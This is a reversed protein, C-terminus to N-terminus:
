RNEFESPPWFRFNEGVDVYDIGGKETSMARDKAEWEDSELIKVLASMKYHSAGCLEACAIEYEGTKNAEFWGTITLGPVLDQKFRLVPIYLAHIVDISRMHLIVPRDKPVILTGHTYDDDTGFKKDPGAYRFNWAFQQALVHVQIADEDNVPFKAPDKLDTWLGFQIVALILLIIAPIATWAVEAKHNGHTYYAKGGEKARYKIIFYILLGETGLFVIGTLWFVFWFLNDIRDGQESISEPLFLGREAMAPLCLSLMALAFFYFRKLAPKRTM